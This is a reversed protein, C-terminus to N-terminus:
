SKTRGSGHFARDRRSRYEEYSEQAVRVGEANYFVQDPFGAVSAHSGGCVEVMCTGDPHQIVESEALVTIAFFSGCELCRSPAKRNRRWEIAATWMAHLASQTLDAPLKNAIYWEEHEADIEPWQSRTNALETVKNELEEISYLRECEVFRECRRCWAYAVHLPFEAGCNMRYHYQFWNDFSALPLGNTPCRIETVFPM